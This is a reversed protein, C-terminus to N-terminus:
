ESESIRVVVKGLSRREEMSRHAEATDKMDYIESVVPKIRGEFVLRMPAMLENLSGMTSGIIELQRFFVHRLDTQPDHGTTAGCTVLRGGRSLSRLSKVWTEKGIYDVVVDVGRKGTHERVARVFDEEAYNILVDAGLERCMDLKDKSSAAAFVRAGAVKAIQICAIGVGASAGLVLVDEGARLRGRTILMRWATVLVMPLSAADEFSLHDPIPVANEAPIVIYECTTGSVTEGVLQYRVCLTVDGRLCFECRGCSISPNM